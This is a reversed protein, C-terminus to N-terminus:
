SNTQKVSLNMKGRRKWRSRGHELLRDDEEPSIDSMRWGSVPFLWRDCRHSKVGPFSVSPWSDQIKKKSVRSKYFAFHVQDGQFLTPSQAVMKTSMNMPSTVILVPCLKQIIQTNIVQLPMCVIIVSLNTKFM